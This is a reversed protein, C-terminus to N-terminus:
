RAVFASQLVRATLGWVEFGDLEFTLVPHQRGQRDSWHSRTNFLEPTVRAVPLYLVREVEHPDAVVQEAASMEVRGVFPKIRHGLTTEHWDLEEIITVASPPIGVEEHTERLATERLDRDGPERAGGPLSVQGAYRKLTEPRKTM